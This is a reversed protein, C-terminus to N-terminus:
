LTAYDPISSVFEHTGADIDLHCCIHTLGNTVILWPTRLVINYRWIQEFVKQTLSVHPAKYEIIMLPAGDRGFVVSDCRRATDNLRLSVENGLLGAPYGKHHMLFHVFHQRVWEEPTLRVYRRRLIDLVEARGNADRRIRLQATPLNLVPM